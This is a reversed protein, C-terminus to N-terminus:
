RMWKTRSKALKVGGFRVQSLIYDVSSHILALDKIIGNVAEDCDFMLDDKIQDFM